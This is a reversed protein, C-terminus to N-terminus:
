YRSFLWTELGCGVGVRLTYVVCLATCVGCLFTNVGGPPTYVGCPSGQTLACVRCCACVGIEMVSLCRTCRCVKARRRSVTAGAHRPTRPHACVPSTLRPFVLVSVFLRSCCRKCNCTHQRTLLKSMATHKTLVLRTTRSVSTKTVARSRFEATKTKTKFCQDRSNELGIL